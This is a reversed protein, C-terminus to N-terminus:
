LQYGCENFLKWNYTIIHRQLKLSNAINQGSMKLLERKQEKRIEKGRGIEKLVIRFDRKSLNTTSLEELREIEVGNHDFYDKVAKHKTFKKNLQDRQTETIM